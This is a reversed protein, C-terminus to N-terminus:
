HASIVRVLLQQRLDEVIPVMLVMLSLLATSTRSTTGNISLQAVIKTQRRISRHVEACHRDAELLDALDNEM